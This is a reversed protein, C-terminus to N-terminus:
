DNAGSVPINVDWIASEPSSLSFLPTRYNIFDYVISCCGGFKPLYQNNLLTIIPLRVDFCPAYNEILQALIKKTYEWPLCVRRNRAVRGGKCEWVSSVLVRDCPLVSLDSRRGRCLERRGTKRSKLLNFRVTTDLLSNVTGAIFGYFVENDLNLSSSLLLDSSRCCSSQANAAM